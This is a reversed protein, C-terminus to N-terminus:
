AATLLARGSDTLRVAGPVCAILGAEALRVGAFQDCCGLGDITLAPCPDASMACRGAEVARLVARDRYSIVNDASMTTEKRASDGVRVDLLLLESRCCIRELEKQRM